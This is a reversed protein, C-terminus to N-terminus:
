VGIVALNTDTDAPVTVATDNNEDNLDQMQTANLAEATLDDPFDWIYAAATRDWAFRRGPPSPRLIIAPLDGAIAQDAGLASPLRQPPIVEVLVDAVMVSAQGAASDFTDQGQEGTIQSM